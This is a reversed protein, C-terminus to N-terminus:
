QIFCCPIAASNPPQFLVDSVVDVVNAAGAAFENRLIKGSFLSSVKRDALLNKPLKRIVCVIAFDGM